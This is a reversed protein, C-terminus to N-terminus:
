EWAGKCSYIRYSNAYCRRRLSSSRKRCLARKLELVIYWTAEKQCMRPTNTRLRVVVCHIGPMYVAEQTEGVNFPQGENYGDKWLNAM